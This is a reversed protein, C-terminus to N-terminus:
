DHRTWGFVRETELNMDIVKGDLDRIVIPDASDMFVKTMRALQAEIQKLSPPGGCSNPATSDSASDAMPTAGWLTSAFRFTAALLAAAARQWRCAGFHSLRSDFGSAQRCQIRLGARRGIGGSECIRRGPPQDRGRTTYTLRGASCCSGACDP